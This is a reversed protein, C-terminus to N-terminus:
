SQKNRTKQYITGASEVAKGTTEKIKDISGTIYEKELVDDLFDASNEVSKKASKGAKFLSKFIKSIM